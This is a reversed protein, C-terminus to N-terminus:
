KVLVKKGNIIYLGKTPKQVRVGSLSYIDATGETGQIGQIGDAAGKSISITNHNMDFVVHYVQYGEETDWVLKWKRDQGRVLDTLTQGSEILTENVESGYRSETWNARGVTSYAEEADTSRTTMITFTAFGPNNYDEFFTVDGEYVGNGKHALPAAEDNKWRHQEGNQDHVSGVVYANDNWHYEIAEFVVTKALPNLTVKFEGGTMQFDSGGTTVVTFDTTAPTVFSRNAVEAKFTETLRTFYVGARGDSNPRNARNQTKFTGTYTGDAQLTLPYLTQKEGYSLENGEADVLDGQVYFGGGISTNNKLEEMLAIMDADTMDKVLLKEMAQDAAAYLAEMLQEDTELMAQDYLSEVLTVLERYIAHSGRIGNFADNLLSMQQMKEETDTAATAAAMLNELQELHEVGFYYDQAERALKLSELHASFNQMMADIAETSQAHYRLILKGWMTVGKDYWPTGTNRVGIRLKGDTVIAYAHNVYRGANFAFSAAYRGEPVYGVGTDTDQSSTQEGNHPANEDDVANFRCNVGNVADDYLVQGKYINMIPTHYENIFIDASVYDNGEMDGGGNDGTRYLAPMEIEYIGNPLGEELDQWVNFATNWSGAVPYIDTFGTNSNLNHDGGNKIIEATWGAFNGDENFAPNYVLHTIDSGESISTKIATLLLEQAFTIEAKLEEVSLPKADLIYQSSGNPLEDSPEEYSNLYLDLLDAADGNLDDRSAVDALISEIAAAYEQYAIHSLRIQQPYRSLIDSVALVETLATANEIQEVAAAYGDVLTAQASLSELDQINATQQTKILQAASELDEGVYELRWTDWVTWNGYLYIRNEIGIRVTDTESEVAFYIPANWYLGKAFYARATELSNPVWCGTAESFDEVGFGISQPQRDDTIEKFLNAVRQGKVEAYYQSNHYLPKYEEGLLGTAYIVEDWQRVRSYGQVRLKYVGKQLGTIEQYNNFWSQNWHEAVSNNIALGSGDASQEGLYGETIDHDANAFVHLFPHNHDERGCVSCFGDIFKHDPVVMTNTNSYTADGAVFSSDCKLEVVPYVIGHGPMFTPMYDVEQGNDLNQYWGIQQQDGNLKYTLAGSEVDEYQFRQGQTGNMSYINNLTAKDHRFAYKDDGQVGYVVSTTWCNTVVAGNSGLWGSIAGSEANGSILGTSCCNDMYIKAQSSANGGLIGGANTSTSYVEGHNALNRLHIDGPKTSGGILGVGKGGYIVCTKDLTLNQVTAGGHLFNFFGSWDHTVASLDLNSIIHYQGDFTGKYGYEFSGIGAFASGTFDIDATLVANIDTKGSNVMAAFWELDRATGLQYFGDVQTCFDEKVAGCVSCYFDGEDFSHVPVTSVSADNTYSGEGLPEGNCALPGDFYVQQSTAFPMPYLDTGLTQYFNIVEQNGNMYYTLKGNAVDEVTLEDVIGQGINETGSLDVLGKVTGSLRGINNTGNFNVITGLNIFNEILTSSNSGMWGALAGAYGQNDANLAATITGTNVCNRIVWLPSNDQQGGILAGADTGGVATVNAENVINELTISTGNNQCSGTVAAVKHKATFSCSKDFIINKVVTHANNGRLFGFFGQNEADPRNIILNMIRHGQGDFIGNYKNATNPGIPNHLNEIGGFDIDNMLKANMTLNGKAVMASFWEVDASTSLPYYGEADPTLYETNLLGCHSCIGGQYDHSGLLCSPVDAETLKWFSRHNTGAVALFTQVTNDNKWNWGICGETFDIVPLNTSTFGFMDEGEENCQLISYEVPETGLLVSVEQKADCAQVYRGSQVNQVYYCNPNGSPILRWYAANDVGSAVKLVDAGDDKVFINVDNRNAITYFKDKDIELGFASTVLCLLTLLSLVKKM